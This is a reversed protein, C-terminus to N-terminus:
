LLMCLLLQWKGQNPGFNSSGLLTLLLVKIHICMVYMETNIHPVYLVCMNRYKLIYDLFFMFELFFM